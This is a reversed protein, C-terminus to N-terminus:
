YVNYNSCLIDDVAIRCQFITSCEEADEDSQVYKLADPIKKLKPCICCKTNNTISILM